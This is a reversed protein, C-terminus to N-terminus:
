NRFPLNWLKGDFETIWLSDGDWALGSPRKLEPLRYQAILKGNLDIVSLNKGKIHWLNTGDFTLGHTMDPRTGIPLPYKELIKGTEPEIKLLQQVESDPLKYDCLHWAIWINKGDFAMSAFSQGNTKKLDPRVMQKYIKEVEWSETSIYGFSEGYSGSLWLRKGDFVMGSASDFPQTLERIAQQQVESDSYKWEKTKLDLTAYHGKDLYVAFWLKEGDYALATIRQPIETPLQSVQKLESVLPVKQGFTSFTLTLLVIIFFTFGKM